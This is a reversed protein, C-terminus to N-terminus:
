APRNHRVAVIWNPHRGECHRWELKPARRLVRTPARFQVAQGLLAGSDCQLNAAREDVDGPPYGREALAHHSGVAHPPLFRHASRATAHESRIEPLQGALLCCAGAGVANAWTRRTRTRTDRHEHGIRRAAWCYVGIAYTASAKGSWRARGIARQCPRSGRAEIGGPQSFPSVEMCRNETNPTSM